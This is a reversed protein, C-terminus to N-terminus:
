TRRRGIHKRSRSTWALHDFLRETDRDHLGITPEDLVYITGTLRSGLQTALRIRQAEGGSLTHATRDLTLYDLGVDCLFQLRDKLERVPQAAIISEAEKLHISQWFVLAQEVTLATIEDIRKGAITTSRVEDCDLDTAHRVRSKEGYGDIKERGGRWLAVFVKGSESSPSRVKPEDGVAGIIFKSRRIWEM